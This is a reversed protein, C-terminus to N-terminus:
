EEETDVELMVEEEFDEELSEETLMKMSLVVQQLPYHILYGQMLIKNDTQISEM